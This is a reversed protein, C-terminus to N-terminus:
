QRKEVDERARELAADFAVLDIENKSQRNGRPSQQEKDNGNNRRKKEDIM